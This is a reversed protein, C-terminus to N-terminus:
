RRIPQLKPRSAGPHGEPWGVKEIWAWFWEPLLYPINGPPQLLHNWREKYEKLYQQGKRRCRVQGQHETTCYRREEAERRHGNSSRLGSRLSRSPPTLRECCRWSGHGDSVSIARSSLRSSRRSLVSDVPSRTRRCGPVIAFIPSPVGSM